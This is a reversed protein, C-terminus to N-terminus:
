KSCICSLTPFWKIWHYLLLKASADQLLVGPEISIFVPQALWSKGDEARDRARDEAHQVRIRWRLHVDDSGQDHIPLQLCRDIGGGETGRPRESSEAFENRSAATRDVHAPSAHDALGRLVHNNERHLCKSVAPLSCNNKSPSGAQTKFEEFGARLVFAEDLVSSCVCEENGGSRMLPKERLDRADHMVPPGACSSSCQAGSNWLDDSGHPDILEVM